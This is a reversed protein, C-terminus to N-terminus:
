NAILKCNIFFFHYNKKDRFNTFQCDIIQYKEVNNKLLLLYRQYFIMFDDVLSDSHYCIYMCNCVILSLM